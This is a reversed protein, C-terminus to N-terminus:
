VVIKKARRRKRWRRFIVIVVAAILMVPWLSILGFFLNQLTKWGDALATKFKYGIGDGSNVQAPHDTYFTIDLSSYAVQKSLYNLQGQVSEIEGRIDALKNEIQLMDSMKNAKALLQLYRQELTKKNDLRAKEDIYQTTVDSISINKSDIKYASSSVTDLILDFNKAPVRIKLEYQKRNSDGELTENDEDVYGGLKKVAHLITRRTLAINSTEFEITGNKIIKKATDAVHNTQPGPDANSLVDNQDAAGISADANAVNDEPPPLAAQRVEADAKVAPPVFKVTAVTEPEKHKCAALAMLLAIAYIRARASAKM